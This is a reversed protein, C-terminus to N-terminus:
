EYLTNCKLSSVALGLLASLRVSQPPGPKPKLLRAWVRGAAFHRNAVVNSRVSIAGRYSRRIFFDPSTCRSLSLRVHTLIGDFYTREGTQDVCYRWYIIVCDGAACSRLKPIVNM